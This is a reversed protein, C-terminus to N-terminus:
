VLLVPHYVDRLSQWLEIWESGSPAGGSRLRPVVIWEAGADDVLKVLGDAGCVGAVVAANLGYRTLSRRAAEAPCLRM